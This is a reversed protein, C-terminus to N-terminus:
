RIVTTAKAILHICAPYKTVHEMCLTVTINVMHVAIWIVKANLLSCQNVSEQISIAHNTQAVHNIKLAFNACLFFITVSTLEVITMTSALVKEALDKQIQPYNGNVNKM